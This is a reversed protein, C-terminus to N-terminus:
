HVNKQSLTNGYQSVIRELRELACATMETQDKPFAVAYRVPPLALFVLGGGYPSLTITAKNGSLTINLGALDLRQLTTILVSDAHLQKILRQVTTNNSKSSFCGSRFRLLCHETQGIHRTLCLNVSMSGGMLQRQWSQTATLGHLTHPLGAFHVDGNDSLKAEGWLEAFLSSTKLIAENAANRRKIRSQFM